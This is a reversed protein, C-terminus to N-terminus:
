KLPIRWSIISFSSSSLSFSLEAMVAWAYPVRDGASPKRSREGPCLPMLGPVFGLRLLSRSFGDGLHLCCFSSSEM